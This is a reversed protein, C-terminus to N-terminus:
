KKLYRRHDTKEAIFKFKLDENGTMRAIFIDRILESELTGLNCKSAQETLAAHFGELSEGSKQTRNFLLMREYIVNKEEKFTDDLMKKLERFTMEHIKARPNKQIFRRIGEKGLAFYLRSKM